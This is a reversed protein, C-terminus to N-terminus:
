EKVLSFHAKASNSLVEVVYMGACLRSINISNGNQLFSQRDLHIMKKGTIDSITIADISVDTRINVVGNTPNPYLGIQHRLQSSVSANSIFEAVLNIDKKVLFPYNANNSVLTGNEKWGAFKYGSNPTATIQIFSDCSFTGDGSVTGGSPPSALLQVQVNKRKCNAKLIISKELVTTYTLDTGLEKGNITWNIFEYCPDLSLTFNRASDNNCWYIGMGTANGGRSPEVLVHVDFEKQSYYSEFSRNAIASITFSTDYSVVTDNEKWYLFTYCNSKAVTSITITSDKLYQGGGFTEDANLDNPSTTVMFTTYPSELAGMDAINGQIRATGNLDQNFQSNVLNNAGANVAPSNWPLSYDFTDAAFPANQANGAKVFLPNKDINNNGYSIGGEILCNNITPEIAPPLNFLPKSAVNGWFICNSVTTYDSAYAAYGNSQKTYNDAFTCNIYKQANTNLSSSTYIAACNGESYNGAFLSNYVSLSSESGNYIAGGDDTTAKNASFTTRDIVVTPSYTAIAGGSKSQNSTFTCSQITLYGSNMYIAGGLSQTNNGTINNKFVCNKLVIGSTNQAYIAGGRMYTYNDSFTCNTFHVYSNLIRAGGGGVTISGGVTYAYGNVIHFGDLLVPSTLNNAFVVNRCNDSALGQTGIDGDLYTINNTIDRQDISTETGAFSGFLQRGNPLDFRANVGNGTPFYRGAAIWITDNSVSNAFASDISTYANTWSTGNASGTANQNVYIRSQSYSVSNIGLFLLFLITSKKSKM